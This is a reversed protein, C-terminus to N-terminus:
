LSVRKKPLIVQLCQILGGLVLLKGIVGFTYPIEMQLGHLILLVVFLDSRFLIRQYMRILFFTSEFIVIQIVWGYIGFALFSEVVMGPNIGVPTSERIFGYYVGFDHTRGSYDNLGFTYGIREVINILTDPNFNFDGQQVVELLMHGPNFLRSLVARFILVIDFDYGSRIVTVAMFVIVFLLFFIVIKKKVNHNVDTTISFLGLLLIPILVSTRRGELLAVTISISLFLLILWFRGSLGRSKRSFHYICGFLFLVLHLTLLRIYISSEREFSRTIRLSSVDTNILSVLVVVFLFMIIVPATNTYFGVRQASNRGLTRVRFFLYLMPPSSLLLSLVLSQANFQDPRIFVFFLPLSFLFLAFFGYKFIQYSNM